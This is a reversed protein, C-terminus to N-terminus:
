LFPFVESQGRTTQDMRAKVGSMQNSSCLWGITTPCLTAIHVTVNKMRNSLTQVVSSLKSLASLLEIHFYM